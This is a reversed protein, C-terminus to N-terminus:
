EVEEVEVDVAEVVLGCMTALVDTVQEQVQRALQPLIEGYRAALELTVRARGDAIEVEAHRRGRRVRAGDVGEVALTVLSTLTASPVTSTGAEGEIVLSM